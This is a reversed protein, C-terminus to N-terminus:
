RQGESAGLVKCLMDGSLRSAPALDDSLAVNFDLLVTHLYDPRGPCPEVGTLVSRWHASIETSISRAAPIALVTPTRIGLLM